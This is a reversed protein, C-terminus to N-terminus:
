IIHLEIVNNNCWCSIEIFNFILNFVSYKLFVKFINQLIISPITATLQQYINQFLIVPDRGIENEVYLM